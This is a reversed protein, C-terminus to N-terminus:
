LDMGTLRKYEKRDWWDPEDDEIMLEPMWEPIPASQKADHELEYFSNGCPMSDYM